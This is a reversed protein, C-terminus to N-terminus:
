AIPQSLPVTEAVPTRWAFTSTIAALLAFAAAGLFLWSFGGTLAQSTTADAAELAGTRAAALSALVALGLAGGIQQSTNILGGALGSEAGSIGDVALQTATVFAGGLGIGVLLTPGLLHLMFVADSPAAALWVLGAALTILSGVLSAKTGLKAVLTPLVGAVLVLTGALPLQSLGATLADYGLVAQLYVSLAFFMAVM